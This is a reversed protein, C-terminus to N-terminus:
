NQANIVALLINPRYQINKQCLQTLERQLKAKKIYTSNLIKGSEARAWVAQSIIYRSILAFAKEHQM